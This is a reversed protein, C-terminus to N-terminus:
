CIWSLSLSLVKIIKSLFSYRAVQRERLYSFFKKSPDTRFISTTSKERVDSTFLSRSHPVGRNLMFYRSKDKMLLSGYFHSLAARAAPFRKFDSSAFTLPSSAPPHLFTGGRPIALRHNFSQRAGAVEVFHHAKWGSSGYSAFVCPSIYIANACSVRNFYWFVM